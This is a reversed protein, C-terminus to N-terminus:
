KIEALMESVIKLFKEVIIRNKEESKMLKEESLKRHIALAYIDALRETLLLDQDTYSHDANALAIQGVLEDNAIAPASLFNKIAIHGEPTGKSREDASPDNTLISKKNDLVWGWLGGVDNFDFETKFVNEVHCKSWVTKTLSFNVLNKTGPETYGVFCFESGTLEKAYGLVQKSIDELSIAGLLRQSLDALANSNKIELSLAKKTKKLATIDRLLGTVGIIEGDANKLPSVSTQFYFSSENIQTSWDYVVNEGNLAKQNAEHHARTSVGLQEFPNKGIFDEANFGYRKLQPESVMTCKEDLDLTFLIDNISNLTIRYREESEKLKTELDHKYLAIEIVSHLERDEFPKIIYGFPGTVKARKLTKEDSYATLYVVPIKFKEVIQAAAEIGDMKGKLVIDMLIIEPSTKEAMEIAKEGSSVTATVEYGLGVLRQGIDIAVISEDEVVMVKIKSM